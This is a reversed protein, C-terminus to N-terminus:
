KLGKIKALNILDRADFSLWNLNDVDQLRNLINCWFDFGEETEDWDFHASFVAPRDEWDGDKEAKLSNRIFSSLAGEETLINKIKTLNSM